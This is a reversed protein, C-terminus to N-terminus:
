GLIISVDASTDDSLNIIGGTDYTDDVTTSLYIGTDFTVPIEDVPIVIPPTGEPAVVPVLDRPQNVTFRRTNMVSIDDSTIFDRQVEAGTTDLLSPIVRIDQKSELNVFTRNTSIPQIQTNIAVLETIDDYFSGWYVNVPQYMTTVAGNDYYFTFTATLLLGYSTTNNNYIHSQSTCVSGGVKGYVVENYISQTRYDFFANRRLNTNKSGDGWDIDLFLVTNVTEDVEYLLFDVNSRGKVTITPQFITETAASSLSYNININKM